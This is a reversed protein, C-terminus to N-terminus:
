IEYIEEYEITMLGEVVFPLTDVREQVAGVDAGELILYVGPGAARRYVAKVVGQAKLERVVRTEEDAHAALAEPKVVVGKAFVIM